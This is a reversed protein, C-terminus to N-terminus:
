SIKAGDSVDALVSEKGVKMEKNKCYVKKGKVEFKVKFFDDISIEDLPDKPGATVSEGPKADKVSLLSLEKGKSCALLMGKSEVGRLKAPKLNHVMIIKKGILEEKKFYPKIGAVIQRIEDGLNLQIVYLKDAEPHDTIEKIEAVRLDVNAFDFTKKDEKKGSFKEKLEKLKKDELKEILTNADGIKFGPKLIQEGLDNLSIGEPLNLQKEINASIEPVFPKLLLALDKIFNALLYLSTDARVKDEKITKWPANEQFYQNGLKSLNMIERLADKLKIEDLLSLIFEEKEGIHCLFKNDLEGPKAEPLKGDYFRHLFKVTRNVLNGVNALLENNVKSQFDEWSFDTDGTEPRNVMIYYRWIDAPIGTEKADTAFVGQNRSKSFQGGEYNLYENSSIHNLLTYKDDAGILSAPFLITHFPVNDKGMFQILKVDLPNHWWNHYDAIYKKTISVYGLPADFWSYFVKGEFNPVPIGWKLDRTICRPKLGEKLWANTMTVANRSWNGEKSQKKIWEKLQPELKPLDIFMHETSREEPKTNCISCKPNILELPDLLKGCSECQDGRANKYNCFPCEGLVFRDSLYKECKTCYAQVVTDKFIYGNKNLRDFVTLTVESNEKDSTRGFADFQCNFWKYIEEHLKFYKDVLQRPNLGEEKAKIETTTGHEDTGCTFIVKEGKLRLYRAYVDASITPVLNGLHPVNNVYPLAATVLYRKVM